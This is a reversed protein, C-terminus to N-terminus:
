QVIWIWDILIDPNSEPAWQLTKESITPYDLLIDYLYTQNAGTNIDEIYIVGAIPDANYFGENIIEETDFVFYKFDGTDHFIWAVNNREWIGILRIDDPSTDPEQLYIYETIQEPEQVCGTLVVIIFILLLLKKM